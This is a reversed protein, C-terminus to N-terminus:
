GAMYNVDNVVTALADRLQQVFNQTNASFNGAGDNFVVNEIQKEIQISLNTVARRDGRVTSLAADASETSYAGTDKTMKDLRNDVGSPDVVGGPFLAKKLQEFDRQAESGLATLEQMQKVRDKYIRAFVSFTSGYGASIDMSSFGAQKAEDTVSGWVGPKWLVGRNKDLIETAQKYTEDVGRGSLAIDRIGAAAEEAGLKKLADSYKLLHDNYEQLGDVATIGKANAKAYLDEYKERNKELTIRRLMAENYKDVNERLKDMAMNEKDLGEVVNPAIRALEAYIENRRELPTESRLLEATLLNVTRREGEMKESVPITTYEVAAEVLSKMGKASKQFSSMLREGINERLDGWANALQKAPGTGTKAAIAAAGGFNKQLEALLMLQAEKVQGQKVFRAFEQEQQASLSVGAERLKRAAREPENLASGLLKAASGLDTKMRTAMDASLAMAQDFVVGRVKRFQLMVTQAGTVLEDGFLTSGQVLAAQKNLEAFGKGAGYGTSELAGRLQETAQIQEDYDRLGSSLKGLQSAAVGIAIGVVGAFRKGMVAFNKGTKQTGLDLRKQEADLSRFARKGSSEFESFGAGSEDKVDIKYEVVEAM